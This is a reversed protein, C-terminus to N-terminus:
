LVIWGVPDEDFYDVDKYLSLMRRSGALLAKVDILHSAKATLLHSRIRLVDLRYLLSHAIYLTATLWLALVTYLFPLRVRYLFTDMATMLDAIPQGAVVEELKTILESCTLSSQLTGDPPTIGHRYLLPMARDCQHLPKPKNDHRHLEELDYQLRLLSEWLRDALHVAWSLYHHVFSASYLAYARYTIPLLHQRCNFNTIGCGFLTSLTKPHDKDHNHISKPPASGRISQVARLDADKLRDWDPCYEHQSSLASGLKSLSGSFAYHLGNGFHHFFSVLEGTTRPTRRTLCVLYKCLKDLPDGNNYCVGTLINYIYFGHKSEERLHDPRFGMRVRSRRCMDGRQYWYTPLDSQDTIFGQLPSADCGHDQGQMPDVPDKRCQWSKSFKVDRGFKCDRWGGSHTDRSCQTRLFSLQHYSAYVYSLLQCLLTYPDDSYHMLPVGYRQYHFKNPAAPKPGEMAALLSSAHGCTQSLAATINGVAFPEPFAEIWTSGEFLSEIHTVLDDYGTANPLDGLWCLMDRVTRPPPNSADTPPIKETTTSPYNAPCIPENIMVGPPAEIEVPTLPPPMRVGVTQLKPQSIKRGQYIPDAQIINEAKPSDSAPRTVYDPKWPTYQITPIQTQLYLKDRQNRPIAVGDFDIHRSNEDPIDLPAPHVPGGVLSDIRGPSPASLYKVYYEDPEEYAKIPDIIEETISVDDADMTLADLPLLTDDKQPATVIDIDTTPKYQMLAHVDPDITPRGDFSNSGIPVLKDKKHPLDHIPIGHIASEGQLDSVMRSRLQDIYAYPPRSRHQNLPKTDIGIEGHLKRYYQDYAEQQKRQEDQHQRYAEEAKKIKDEVDSSPYHASSKNPKHITPQTYCVSKGNMSMSVGDCRKVNNPPIQTQGVSHGGSQGPGQGGASGTGSGSVSPDQPSAAGHPPTPQAGHVDGGTSDPSGNTSKGRANHAVTSSSTVQQNLPEAPDADGKTNPDLPQMAHQDHLDQAKMPGHLSDQSSSPEAATIPPAPPPPPQHAPLAPGPQGLSGNDQPEVRQQARTVVDDSNGLPTQGPAHLISAPNHGDADGTHGQPNVQSSSQVTVSLGGPPGPIDSSPPDTATNSPTQHQLSPQPANSPKGSHNDVQSDGDTAGASGGGGVGGGVGSDARSVASTTTASSTLNQQPGQPHKQTPKYSLAQDKLDQATDHHDPSSLSDPTQVNSNQTDSVNSSVSPRIGSSLKGDPDPFPDVQTGVKGPAGDHSSGAQPLSSGPSGPDDDDAAGHSLSNQGPDSPTQPLDISVAAVPKSSTSVTDKAAATLSGGTSPAGGPGVREGAGSDSPLTHSPQGISGMGVDKNYQSVPTSQPSHRTSAVGGSYTSGSSLPDSNGLQMSDQSPGGQKSPDLVPSAHPLTITSGLSTQSSQQIHGSAPVQASLDQGGADTVSSSSPSSSSASSNDHVTPQSALRAPTPLQEAPPSPARHASPVAPPPHKPHSKPTSQRHLPQSQTSITRGPSRTNQTGKAGQGGRARGPGPGQGRGRQAGSRGRRNPGGRRHNSGGVGINGGRVGSVPGGVSSRGGGGRTGTTRVGPTGPSGPPPAPRAPRPPRPAPRAPRPPRPAPAPPHCGKGDLIRKLEALGGDDKDLKELVSDWHDSLTKWAESM